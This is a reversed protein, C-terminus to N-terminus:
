SSPAHSGRSSVCRTGHGAVTWQTRKSIVGTDAASAVAPVPTSRSASNRPARSLLLPKADLRSPIVAFGQMLDAVRKLRIPDLSEPYDAIHVLQATAQDM